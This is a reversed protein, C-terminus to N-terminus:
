PSVKRLASRFAHSLDLHCSVKQAALWDNFTRVPFPKIVLPHSDRRDKEICKMCITALDGPVAPNRHRVASPPEDQVRRLVDQSTDGDFPVRGTLLHYLIAGLSYVDAGVGVDDGSGAAQEPAM